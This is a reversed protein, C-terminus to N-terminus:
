INPRACPLRTRSHRWSNCGSTSSSQLQPPCSSHWGVRLASPSCSIPTHPLPSPHLAAGSSLFSARPSPLSSPWACLRSTIRLMRWTAREGKKKGGTSVKAFLVPPRLMPNMLMTMLIEPLNRDKFNPRAAHSARQKSRATEGPVFARSRRSISEHVFRGALVIVSQLATFGLRPFPVFKIDLNHVATDFHASTKSAKSTRNEM